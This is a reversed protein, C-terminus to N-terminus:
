SDGLLQSIGSFFQGASQQQQEATSQEPGGSKNRLLLTEPIESLFRSPERQELKGYKRRRRAGLLMLQKEARTMGVYCLRREEDVDFTEDITKKHPLYGEEMGVLFVVPFELGKSSHLSMLTVADAALKKEKDNRGPREDDLLSVKELFGALSPQPERDLYASMANSVQDQNEIRRRAATLDKEQRYIEEALKLEALLERLTEVLYLPQQFRKRYRELLAVFGNVAESTRENLEPVQSVEKLVSWLAMSREASYRIIKDVSTEGIGRKPYNLIRLLNVEDLPNVLVRLYAIM